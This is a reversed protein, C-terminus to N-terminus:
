REIAVGGTSPTPMEVGHAVGRGRAYAYAPERTLTPLSALDGVSMEALLWNWRAKFSSLSFTALERPVTRERESAGLLDVCAAKLEHPRDPNVVRGFNSNLVVESSADLSSAVIPLGCALAELYVIGFGEGRGPMVFADALRYHDAKEEEPVFGAFV